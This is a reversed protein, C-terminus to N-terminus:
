PTRPNLVPGHEPKAGVAVEWREAIWALAEDERGDPTYAGREWDCLKLVTLGVRRACESLGLRSVTRMDRITRGLSESYVPYRPAEHDGHMTAHIRTGIPKVLRLKM